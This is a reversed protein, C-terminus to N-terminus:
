KSHSVQFKLLKRAPKIDELNQYEKVPSKIANFFNSLPYLHFINQSTIKQTKRPILWFFTTQPNHKAVYNLLSLDDDIYYDLKLNKIIRNKFIHPQENAFNFFMEDFIKNFQHKKIMRKTRHELFKFRSSILYLKNKDKPISRLFELNEKIAPRLISLHTIRRFIQEPKGPIRYLLTGNDKKKYLKDIVIKPILPPTDIFVKDLDFGINM